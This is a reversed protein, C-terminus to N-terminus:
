QINQVQEKIKELISKAEVIMRTLAAGNSKSGITNHERLLEQCYFDLKKGVDGSGESRNQTLCTKFHRLHELIRDLEESIDSRDLQFAVEQTIRESDLNLDLDSIRSKLRLIFKSRLDGQIKSFESTIKKQQLGLLDLQTTIAKLTASGERIREKLCAQMASQLVKKVQLLLNKRVKLDAPWSHDSALNQILPFLDRLTLDNTLGMKKTLGQLHAVQKKLINADVGEIGVGSRKINLSIDITGRSFQGELEKRIWSELESAERPIHTRIELFRGNVARVIVEVDFGQISAKAIGMGTMSQM